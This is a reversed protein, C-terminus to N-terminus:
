YSDRLKLNLSNWMKRLFRKFNFGEHRSRLVDQPKMASLQEETRIQLQGMAELHRLESEQKSRALNQRELEARADLEMQLEARSALIQGQVRSREQEINLETAARERLRRIEMEYQHQEKEMDRFYQEDSRPSTKPSEAQASKRERNGEATPSPSALVDNAYKMVRRQLLTIEILSVAAEQSVQNYQQIMHGAEGTEQPGASMPLHQTANPTRNPPQTTSPESSQLLKELTSDPASQLLQAFDGAGQANPKIETKISDM